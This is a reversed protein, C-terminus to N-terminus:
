HGAAPEPLDDIPTWPALGDLDWDDDLGLGVLNALTGTREAAYLRWIVRLGQLSGPGDTLPTAGTDLCDVFHRLEGELHKSNADVQAVVEASSAEPLLTGSLGGRPAPGEWGHHALLRGGTLDAEWM